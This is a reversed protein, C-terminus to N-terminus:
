HDVIGHSHHFHYSLAKIVQGRHRRRLEVRGIVRAGVEFSLAMLGM